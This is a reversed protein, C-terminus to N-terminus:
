TYPKYITRKDNKQQRNMDNKTTALSQVTDSNQARCQPDSQTQNTNSIIASQQLLQNLLQQSNMLSHRSIWDDTTIDVFTAKSRSNFVVEKYEEYRKQVLSVSFYPRSSMPYKPGCITVM